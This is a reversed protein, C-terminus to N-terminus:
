QGPLTTREALAKPAAFATFRPLPAQAVSAEWRLRGAAAILLALLLYFDPSTLGPASLSAAVLTGILAGTCGHIVM